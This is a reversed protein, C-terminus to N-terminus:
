PTRRTLTITRTVPRSDQVEAVVRLELRAGGPAAIRGTGDGRDELTVGAPAGELRLRVPAGEPDAAAVWAEDAALAAPTLWVADEDLAPAFVALVSGVARESGDSPRNVVGLGDVWLCTSGGGDLNVADRCGLDRLWRALDGLALGASAKSRGDVVGLLLRGDGAAGVATRPHRATVFSAGSGELSADGPVVAGADLLRGVGGLAHTVDPWDRGAPVLGFRPRGDAGVGFASRDKANTALLRGGTKLLSVSRCAEGGGTAFFGGNVAAVAGAERAIASTRQCGRAAVPEVRTGPEVVLAAGVLPAGSADTWRRTRLTVGRAVPRDHWGDRPELDIRLRFAGAKEPGQFTDVVVFCPGAEVDASATRDGRAACRTALGSADLDLGTLLHLDVDVGAAAEVAATLRGPAAVELRYVVEPGAESAEPKAAYRAAASRRGVTTAAHRFPTAPVLLPRGWDGPREEGRAISACALLALFGPALRM